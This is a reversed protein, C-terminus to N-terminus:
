VLDLQQQKRSLFFTFSVGVLFLFSPVQYSPDRLAKIIFPTRAILSVNMKETQFIVEDSKFFVVEASYIGTPLRHEINFLLEQSTGASILPIDKEKITIVEVIKPNNINKLTLQLSTPRTPVNGKNILFLSLGFVGESGSRVYAQKIELEEIRDHVIKFNVNAALAFVIGTGTQGEENPLFRFTIKASLDEGEALGVTSILFNFPLENKGAPFIVESSAIIAQAQPGTVVVQVRADTEAISRSLMIQQSSYTKNLLRFEEIEPPSIGVSAAFVSQSSMLFLFSFLFFFSSKHLHPIYKKISDVFIM